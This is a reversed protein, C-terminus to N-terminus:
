DVSFERNFESENYYACFTWENWGNIGVNFRTETKGNQYDYHQIFCDYHRGTEKETVRFATKVFGDSLKM